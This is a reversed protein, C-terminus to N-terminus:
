RIIETITYSVNCNRFDEDDMFGPCKYIGTKRDFRLKGGGCASCM